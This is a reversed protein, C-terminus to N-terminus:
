SSINSNQQRTASSYINSRLIDIAYHQQKFSIRSWVRLFVHEFVDAPEFTIYKVVDDDDDVDYKFPETFSGFLNWM